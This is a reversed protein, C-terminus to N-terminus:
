SKASCFCDLVVHNFFSIGSRRLSFIANLCGRLHDPSNDLPCRLHETRHSQRKSVRQRSWAIYPFSTFYASIHVLCRYACISLGIDVIVESLVNTCVRPWVRACQHVDTRTVVSNTVIWDRVNRHLIHHRPVAQTRRDMHVLGSECLSLCCAPLYVMRNCSHKTMILSIVLKEDHFYHAALKHGSIGLLHLGGLSRQDM